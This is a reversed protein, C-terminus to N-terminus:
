VYSGNLAYITNGNNKIPTIRYSQILCFEEQIQNIFNVDNIMKEVIYGCLQAKKMGTATALRSLKNNDKNTLSIAVKNIRKGGLGKGEIL